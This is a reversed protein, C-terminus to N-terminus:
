AYIRGEIAHEPRAARLDSAARSAASAALVSDLADGGPDAVNTARAGPSLDVRAAAEIWNVIRRRARALSPAAGKYPVYLGAAKLTSAPCAEVVAPLDALPRQMPVVRARRERVLPALLDRVGFFTQRYVRLNWPSFPARAEDDAARRRERGRCKKRCSDRFAGADEYRDGFARAFETWREGGTTEVPLGFPFDIGVVCPGAAAVFARLAAIAADRDAAGGTLSAASRVARISLTGGPRRTGSAVFIRRGPDRAASFDVGHVTTLSRPM